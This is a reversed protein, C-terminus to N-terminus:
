FLSLSLPFFSLEMFKVKFFSTFNKSAYYSVLCHKPVGGSLSRTGALLSCEKKHEQSLSVVQPAQLKEDSPVSELALRAAAASGATPSLKL